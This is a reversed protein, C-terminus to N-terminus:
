CKRRLVLGLGGIVVVAGILWLWWQFPQEAPEESPEATAVKVAEESTPEPQKAEEVVQVSAPEADEVMQTPRLDNRYDIIKWEGSQSSIWERIHKIEEISWLAAELKPAYPFDVLIKSLTEAAFSASPIDMSRNPNLQFTHIKDSRLLEVLIDVVEPQAVYRLDHSVISPDKLYWNESLSGIYEIIRRIAESDGNKALAKLSTWGTPYSDKTITFDDDVKRLNERLWDYEIQAAGYVKPINVRFFSNNMKSSKLDLLVQKSYESFQNRHVTTLSEIGAQWVGPEESSLSYVVYDLLIRKSELSDANRADSRLRRALDIAFRDSGKPVLMEPSFNLDHESLYKYLSPAVDADLQHAPPMIADLRSFAIFFLIYSKFLHERM